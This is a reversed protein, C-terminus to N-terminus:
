SARCINFEKWTCDRMQMCKISAKGIREEERRRSREPWSFRMASSTAASPVKQRISSSLAASAGKNGEGNFTNKKGYSIIAFFINVWPFKFPISIWSIFKMRPYVLCGEWLTLKGNNCTSSREPEIAAFHLKRKFRACGRFTALYLPKIRSKIKHKIKIVGHRFNKAPFIVQLITLCSFWGTQISHIENLHKVIRSVCEAHFESYYEKFLIKLKTKMQMLYRVCLLMPFVAPFDRLNIIKESSRDWTLSMSEDKEKERSLFESRSNNLILVNICKYM